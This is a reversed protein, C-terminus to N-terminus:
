ILDAYWHLIRGAEVKTKLSEIVKDIKLEEDFFEIIMPLDFHVDLISAQRNKGSHGYGKVGRFVTAGGIMEQHLINYIENILQSDESLYIRVVKVRTM